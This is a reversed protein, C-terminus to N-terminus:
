VGALMAKTAQPTTRMSPWTDFSRHRGLAKQAGFLLSGRNTPDSTQTKNIQGLVLQAAEDRELFPWSTVETRAHLQEGQQQRM